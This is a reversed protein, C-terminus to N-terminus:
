QPHVFLTMRNTPPPRTAASLARPIDIEEASLPVAGSLNSQNLHAAVQPGPVLETNGELSRFVLGLTGIAQQPARWV